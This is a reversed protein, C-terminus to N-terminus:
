DGKIHPDSQPALLFKRLEPMTAASLKLILAARLHAKVLPDDEDDLLEVAQDLDRQAKMDQRLSTTQSEMHRLASDARKHFLTGIVAMLLGSVSAVISAYQDGISDARYIALAVGAILVAGGLISAGLSVFFSARAQTLGYSYYRILLKTFKASDKEQPTHLASQPIDEPLLEETLAARERDVAKAFLRSAIASGLAGVVGLVAGLVAVTGSEM